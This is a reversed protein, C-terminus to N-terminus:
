DGRLAENLIELGLDRCLVDESIETICKEFSQRSTDVDKFESEVGRLRESKLDYQIQLWRVGNNKCARKLKSVDVQSAWERSGSISIRVVAGSLDVADSLELEKIENVFILPDVEEELVIFHLFPRDELPEFTQKIRLSGDVDYSVEGFSVSPTFSLDARSFDQHSMSGIVWVKDSLKQQLHVDGLEFWRYEGFVSLSVGKGLPIMKGDVSMSVGAEAPTFHGFGIRPLTTKRMLFPILEEDIVWPCLDIHFQPSSSPFDISSLDSIVSLNNKQTFSLRESLERLLLEDSMFNYSLKSARDHNGVLIYVSGVELFKFLVSLVLSKLREPPNVKHFVDGLVFFSGASRKKALSIARDLMELKDVLRSHLNTVPDIYGHREELRFHPDAVSAWSFTEM